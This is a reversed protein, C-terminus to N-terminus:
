LIGGGTGIRHWIFRTWAGVDWKWFIWKYMKCNDEWRHQPIGLPRKGEPRGMLVRCAGRRVGVHAVHRACRMRRSKIMLVFNPSFYM